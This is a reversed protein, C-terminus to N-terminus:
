VSGTATSAAAYDRQLLGSIASDQIDDGVRWRERLLGERAFGVRELLRLSAINRPDVDAEVRHMALAGFAHALALQLAETAYGRGWHPRALAYGITARRHTADLAFLSCTGILEGHAPAEADLAITWPVFEGAGGGRQNRAFLEQAQAIDTFPPCSWYRMVVPDAHLAFLGVIDDATQERLQVRRGRLRPVTATSM